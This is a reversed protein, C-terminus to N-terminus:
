LMAMRPCFPIELIEPAGKSSTFALAGKLVASVQVIETCPLLPHSRRTQLLEVRAFAKSLNNFSSERYAWGKTASKKSDEQRYPTSKSCVTLM